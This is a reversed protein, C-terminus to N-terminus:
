RAQRLDVDARDLLKRGAGNADDLVAMEVNADVVAAALKVRELVAARVVVPRQALAVPLLVLADDDARAV